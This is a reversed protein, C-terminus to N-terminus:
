FSLYRLLDGRKAVMSGATTGDNSSGSFDFWTADTKRFTLKCVCNMSSNFEDYPTNFVINREDADLVKTFFMVDYIDGGFYDSTGNAGLGFNSPMSTYGTYSWSGSLEKNYLYATITGDGDTNPDTWSVLLFYETKATITDDILINTTLDGLVVALDSNAIQLYFRPTAGGIIFQSTTVDAGTKFRIAYTGNYSFFNSPTAFTIKDDTGDFTYTSRLSRYVNNWDISTGEQTTFGVKSSDLITPEKESISFGVYTNNLLQYNETGSIYVPKTILGNTSKTFLNNNISIVESDECRVFNGDTTNIQTSDFTNNTLLVNNTGNFYVYKNGYSEIFSNESIVCNLNQTTADIEIAWKNKKFHNNEIKPSKASSGTILISIGTTETPEFENQSVSASAGLITLATETVKFFVNNSVTTESLGGYLGLRCNSLHNKFFNFSDTGSADVCVDWDWIYVSEVTALGIKTLSATSNTNDVLKLATKGEVSGGGFIGINKIQIGQSRYSVSGSTLTTFGDTNNTFFLATQSIYDINSPTAVQEPFLTQVGTISTSQGLYLTSEIKYNGYPVIVDSARNSKSDIANQFAASDDTGTGLNYDYDGKAGFDKVNAYDFCGIWRGTTIATIKIIDGGNDTETSTNDWRYCIIPKDGKSYYGLLFVVDNANPQAMLRLDAITDVLSASDLLGAIAVDLQGKNVAETSSTADAVEFTETSDGNLDAKGTLLPEILTAIQTITAKEALGTTPDAFPVLDTSVPTGAGLENIKITAM